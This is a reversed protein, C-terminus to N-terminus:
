SFVEEILIKAAKPGTVELVLQDGNKGESLKFDLFSCCQNELQILTELETKLSSKNFFSLQQGNSLEVRNTVHPLLTQRIIKIRSRMDNNNLTCAIDPNTQAM